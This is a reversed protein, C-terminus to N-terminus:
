CIKFNSFTENEINRSHVDDVTAAAPGIHLWQEFQSLADADGYAMVEVQGEELNRVWGTINLELAKTRTCARFFVGQVHGSVIYNICKNM